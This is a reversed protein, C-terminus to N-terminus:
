GAYIYWVFLEQGWFLSVVAGAALYPGFPLRSGWKRGKTLILLMGVVSGILSGVFTTLIVGKWGLIGGFLAMLKIDGGGMAQKKFVKEGIVAILYFFVVGFFLGIFPAHADLGLGCADGPRNRFPVQLVM